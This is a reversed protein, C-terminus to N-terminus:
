GNETVRSEPIIFFQCSTIASGRSRYGTEGATHLYLARFAASCSLLDLLRENHVYIYTFM